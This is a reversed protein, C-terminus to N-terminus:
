SHYLITDHNILSRSGAPNQAFKPDRYNTLLQPNKEEEKGFKLKLCPWAEILAHDDM